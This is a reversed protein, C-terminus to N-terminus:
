ILQLKNTAKYLSICKIKSVKVYTKYSLMCIKRWNEKQKLSFTESWFKKLRVSTNLFHKHFVSNFTLAFVNLIKHIITMREPHYKAPCTRFTTSKLKATPFSIAYHM